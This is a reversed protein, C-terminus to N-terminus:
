AWRQVGCFPCAESGAYFVEPKGAAGLPPLAREITPGALGFRAGALAQEAAAQLAGPPVSTVESAVRRALAGSAALWAAEYLNVAASPKGARAHRNGASLAANATALLAAAGGQAEAITDRALGRDAAVILELATTGDARSRGAVRGLDTVAQASARFM